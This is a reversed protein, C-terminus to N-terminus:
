FTWDIPKNGISGYTPDAFNFRATGHFFAGQKRIKLVGSGNSGFFILGQGYLEFAVTSWETITIENEGIEVGGQSAELWLQETSSGATNFRPAPFSRTIHIVLNTGSKIDGQQNQLDIEVSAQPYVEVAFNGSSREM